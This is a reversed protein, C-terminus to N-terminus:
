RVTSGARHKTGVREDAAPRLGGPFDDVDNRRDKSKANRHGLPGLEFGLMKRNELLAPHRGRHRVQCGSQVQRKCHDADQDSVQAVVM